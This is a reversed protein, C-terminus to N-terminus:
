LLQSRTNYIFSYDLNLYDNIEKFTCRMYLEHASLMWPNIKLTETITENPYATIQRVYRKYELYYYFRRKMGDIDHFNNPRINYSLQICKM